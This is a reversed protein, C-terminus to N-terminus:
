RRVAGLFSAAWIGMGGVVGSSVVVLHFDGSEGLAVDVLDGAIAGHRDEVPDLLGSRKIGVTQFHVVPEERAELRGIEVLHAFCDGAGAERHGHEAARGVERIGVGVAALAGDIALGVNIAAALRRPPGRM